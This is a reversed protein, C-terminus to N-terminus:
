NNNVQYLNFDDLSGWAGGDAKIRAGITITGDETVLINNVQPNSWNM